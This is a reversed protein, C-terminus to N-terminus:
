LVEQRADGPLLGYCFLSAIGEALEEHSPQMLRNDGRPGISSLLTRTILQAILAPKMPRLKGREMQAALYERLRTSLHKALMNVSPQEDKRSLAGDPLRSSVVQYMIRLLSIARPTDLVKVIQKLLHHLGTVPDEDNVQEFAADLQEIVLRAHYEFTAFFVDAKSEFYFYILGQNVNAREAIMKNTAAEFGQEAFVSLAAELIQQRRDVGPIAPRRPM